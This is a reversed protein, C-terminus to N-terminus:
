HVFKLENCFDVQQCEPGWFFRCLRGGLYVEPAKLVLIQLWPSIFRIPFIIRANKHIKLFKPFNNLWGRWEWPYETPISFWFVRINTCQFGVYCTELKWTCKLDFPVLVDLLVICFFTQCDITPLYTLFPHISVPCM